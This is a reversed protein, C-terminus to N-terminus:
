KLGRMHRDVTEFTAMPAFPLPVWAGLVESWACWQGDVRAWVRGTPTKNVWAPGSAGSPWRRPPTVVRRATDRRAARM